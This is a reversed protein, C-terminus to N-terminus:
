NTYFYLIINDRAYLAYFICQKWDYHVFGTSFARELIWDQLQEPEVVNRMCLVLLM